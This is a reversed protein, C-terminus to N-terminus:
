KHRRFPKRGSPRYHGAFDHSGDQIISIEMIHRGAEDAIYQQFALAFIQRAIEPKTVELVPSCDKDGSFQMLLPTETESASGLTVHVDHPALFATLNVIEEPAGNLYLRLLVGSAADEEETGAGGLARLIEAIKAIDAETELYANESGTLVDASEVGTYHVQFQVARREPIVKLHHPNDFDQFDAFSLAAKDKGCACLFGLALFLAAIFLFKIKRERVKM